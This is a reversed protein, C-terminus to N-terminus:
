VEEDDDDEKAEKWYYGTGFGIIYTVCLFCLVELVLAIDVTYAHVEVETGFDKLTYLIWSGFYLVTLGIGAKKM